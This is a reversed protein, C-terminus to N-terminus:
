FHFNFGGGILINHFDEADDSDLSRNSGKKFAGITQYSVEVHVGFPGRIYEIGGGITSSLRLSHHFYTGAPANDIKIKISDNYTGGLTWKIYFFPGQHQQFDSTHLLAKVEEFDWFKVFFEPPFQLRGGVEFQYLELEDLSVKQGNNNFRDGNYTQYNGGVLIMFFPTPLIGVHMGMLHGDKFLDRYDEEGGDGAFLPSYGYTPILYIPWRFDLKRSDQVKTKEELALYTNSLRLSKQRLVGDEDFVLAMSNTEDSNGELEAFTHRYGFVSIPAQFRVGLRTFDKHLYWIYDKGNKWELKEPAGLEDLTDALTTKGEELSEYGEIDLPM